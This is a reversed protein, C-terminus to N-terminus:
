VYYEEKLLTLITPNQGCVLVSVSYLLCFFRVDSKQCRVNSKQDRLEQKTGAWSLEKCSPM